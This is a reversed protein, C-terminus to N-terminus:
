DANLGEAFLRYDEEQRALTARAAAMQRQQTEIEQGRAVFRDLFWEFVRITTAM